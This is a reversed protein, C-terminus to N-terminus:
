DTNEDVVQEDVTSDLTLAVCRKALSPACLFGHRYLGNVYVTRSRRRLKPLNDTFAPRVDTGIEVVAAQAFAPQLAYASSLLEMVSGASANSRDDSEIMTAGVMYQNNARPVVYIPHRPHLLRIPRNLTVDKCSLILMEGKVGRLDPLADRAALGRCDIRWDSLPPSNLTANDIPTNFHAEFYEHELLTALLVTLARRPDLHCEQEFFLGKTYRQALDPELERLQEEGIENFHSTRRGFQLLESLDRRQAVVLSGNTTVAHQQEKWFAMGEIGLDVILPETNEGECWPALMGGAWWSCCSEDISNSAAYLSVKCGRDLFHKACCLGAVGAGIIEVSTQTM